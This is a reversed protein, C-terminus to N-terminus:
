GRAATDLREVAETYAKRLRFGSHGCIPPYKGREDRVAKDVDALHYDVQTIAKALDDSGTTFVWGGIPDSAAWMNIWRNPLKRHLAQMASVGFYAPFNRGFLRRLPSGHTLLAVDALDDGEKSPLLLAAAAIISGQSHASVVVPSSTALIRTQVRLDPVAREAYCPPTLPHNARPWFTIVDWLIGVTRRAQRNRFALVTVSVIGGAAAALLVIAISALWDYITQWDGELRGFGLNLGVIFWPVFTVLAVTTLGALIAPGIDPLWAWARTRTISKWRDDDTWDKDARARRPITRFVVVLVVLFLLLALVVFVIAALAFASPVTLSADIDYENIKTDISVLPDALIRVREGHEDNAVKESLVPEGFFQATVLVLGASFGGGALLAIAAVFFATFGRLTPRYGKEDYPVDDDAPDHVRVNKDRLLRALLMAVFLAALIGIQTLLLGYMAAHLGAL